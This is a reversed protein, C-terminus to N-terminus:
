LAGLHAEFFFWILSPVIGTIYHAEPKCIYSVWSAVDEPNGDPVDSPVGLGHRLAAGPKGGFLADAESIAVFM